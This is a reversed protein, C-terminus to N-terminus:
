LLLFFYVRSVFLLSVEIMFWYFEFVVFIMEVMEVVEELGCISEEGQDMVM